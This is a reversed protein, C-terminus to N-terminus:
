ETTSDPLPSGNNRRAWTILLRVSRGYDRAGDPVRNARLYRDNIAGGIAQGIGRFQQFYADVDRLDRVVGPIRQQGIRRWETVDRRILTNALQSQANMAASYRAHRDPALAAAIMGLFNAEAESTSGRQHAKEHAMAAPALVAPLDRLINTEATFPFYIGVIGFRALIPSALPRKVPGFRLAAAGPLSLLPTALEWGRDLAADLAARDAPLATPRGADLSGHLDIYARNSEIVARETLTVLEDIAVGDWDPWGAQTEFRPRAYNFGWLLYFLFVIVGLDRVARLAGHAFVNRWSRTRRIAATVGVGAVALLFLVYLAILIEGLAFPFLGTARAVPRSIYPWIGSTYISEVFHPSRGLIRSGLFAAVGLGAAALPARWRLPRDAQRGGCEPENM